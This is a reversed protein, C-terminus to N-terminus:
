LESIHLPFSFPFLSTKILSKLDVFEPEEPNSRKHRKAGINRGRQNIWFTGLHAWIEWSHRHRWPYNLLKAIAKLFKAM